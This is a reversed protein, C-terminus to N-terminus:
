SLIQYQHMHLHATYSCTLLCSQPNKTEKTTLTRDPSPCLRSILLLTFSLQSLLLKTYPQGHNFLRQGDPLGDTRVSM